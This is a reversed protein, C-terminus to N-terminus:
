HAADNRQGSEFAILQKLAKKLTSYYFVFGTDILKKPTAAVSALLMEDAMEKLGLQLVKKPIRLFLPRRLSAALEKSFEEQTVPNPSTFNVAGEIEQTQLVHYLGYILDDLAIWSVKQDGRGMVAGLGMQFLPLLRGLMGGRRSLVVGFRTHVGRSGRNEIACTAEEWKKCVGSLFGKGPLSEETLLEGPRDGYIGIASACIFVKPIRICRMFVQSLLWSDRCRSLFIESKQRKTWRRNAINKGALHIVADFDEFEKPNIAGTKPDWCISNEKKEKSRVLKVVQHGAGELFPILAKGVLGHTGSVLIRLTKKPYKGIVELDRTLTMQRWKLIQEIRKKSVFSHALEITEHWVCTQDDIPDIKAEIKCYSFPGEKQIFSFPKDTQKQLVWKKWTFGTFVLMSVRDESISVNKYKLDPPLLREFYSPAHLLSLAEKAPSKLRSSISASLPKKTV